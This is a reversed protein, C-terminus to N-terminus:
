YTGATTLIASLILTVLFLFGMALVMGFTLLNQRILQGLGARARPVDFVRNLADKLEKFVGAAGILVLIINLFTFGTGLRQQSAQRVVEGIFAAGEEGLYGRTEALIREEAASTGFFVGAVAIAIILLPVLSFVAYYALSAGFRPAEDEQFRRFATLFLNKIKKFEFVM